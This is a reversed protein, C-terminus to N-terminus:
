EFVGMRIDALYSGMCWAKARLLADKENLGKLSTEKAAKSPKRGRMYRLTATWKDGGDDSFVYSERGTFNNFMPEKRIKM